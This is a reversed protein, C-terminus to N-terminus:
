EKMKFISTSNDKSIVKAPIGGLTVNGEPFSKSVVANAGIVTNDGINIAGFIKAGPGIYVNDGIQPVKTSDRADSGINVGVHIRCNKGIKCKSNIVINGYHAISLGECFVNESISFGLKYSLRRLKIKILVYNIKGIFDKRCNLLYEARRLTREFRWIDNKLFEFISPNNGVLAIKDAELYKKYTLKDTIM